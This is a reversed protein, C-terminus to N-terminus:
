DADIWTFAAIGSAQCAEPSLWIAEHDPIPQGDELRFVPIEIELNDIAESCLSHLDSSTAKWVPQFSRSSSRSYVHCALLSLVNASRDEQLQFVLPGFKTLLPGAHRAPPYSPRSVFSDPHFPWIRYIADSAAELIPKSFKSTWYPHSTYVGNAAAALIAESLLDPDRLLKFGTPISLDLKSFFCSGRLDIRSPWAPSSKTQLDEPFLKGITKATWFERTSSSSSFVYVSAQDLPDTKFTKKWCPSIYASIRRRAELLKAEDPYSRTRIAISISQHCFVASKGLYCCTETESSDLAAKTRAAEYFSGIQLQAAKLFKRSAAKEEAAATTALAKQYIESGAPVLKPPFSKSTWVYVLEVPFVFGDLKGGSAELIAMLEEESIGTKFGRPDEVVFRHWEYVTRLQSLEMHSYRCGTSSSGPVLKFGAVPKNEFESVKGSVHKQLEAAVDLQRGPKFGGTAKAFRSLDAWVDNKYRCSLIALGPCSSLRGAQFKAPVWLDEEHYVM